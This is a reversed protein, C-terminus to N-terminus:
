WVEEFILNSRTTFKKKSLIANDKIKKGRESGLHRDVDVIIGGFRSFGRVFCFTGAVGECVERVGWAQKTGRKRLLEWADMHGM